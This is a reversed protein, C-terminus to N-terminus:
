GREPQRDAQMIDDVVENIRDAISRERTAVELAAAGSNIIRTLDAVSLALCHHKGGADMYTMRLGHRTSFSPLMKPREVIGAFPDVPDTM